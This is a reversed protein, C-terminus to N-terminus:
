YPRPNRKASVANSYKKVKGALKDVGGPWDDGAYSEIFLRRMTKDFYKDLMSHDLRGLNKIQRNKDTVNHSMRHLDIVAFDWENPKQSERIFIHWIYLDPLNIRADHIKRITKALSTIIKEKQSQALQPWNRAVFDTLCLGPLKETVFFSKRELGWKIQEGFCTSKYTEVGNEFLLNANKWEVAAQSCLRGFNRWSFLMDKYHPHHFRKLFFVKRAAGDGFTLISVDRKTNKNIQQGGCYGFFDDFSKLGFEAFVEQWSDAFVIKEVARERNQFVEM